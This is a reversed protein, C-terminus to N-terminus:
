QRRAAIFAGAGKTGDGYTNFVTLMGVMGMLVSAVRSIASMGNEVQYTHMSGMKAFAAALMGMGISIATITGILKATDLGTLDTAALVKLAVVMSFLESIVSALAQVARTPDDIKALLYM